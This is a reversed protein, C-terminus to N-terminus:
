NQLVNLGVYKFFSSNEAGVEFIKNLPDIVEGYFM